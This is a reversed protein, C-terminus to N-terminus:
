VFASARLRLCWFGAVRTHTSRRSSTNCCMSMVTWRNTCWLNWDVCCSLVTRAHLSSLIREVCTPESRWMRQACSREVATSTSQQSRCAHEARQGHVMCNQLMTRRTIPVYHESHATHLNAVCLRTGADHHAYKFVRFETPRDTAHSINPLASPRGLNHAIFRDRKHNGDIETTYAYYTRPLHVRRHSNM